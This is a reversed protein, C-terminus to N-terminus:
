PVLLEMADAASLTKGNLTAEATVKWSGSTLGIDQIDWQWFASGGTDIQKEPLKKESAGQTFVITCKAGPTSNCVSTESTPAGNTGPRHNSVFNGSPAALVTNASDNKDNTANGQSNDTPKSPTTTKQQQSSTVEGKTYPSATTIPQNNNWVKYMFFAAALCFIVVLGILLLTKGSKKKDNM